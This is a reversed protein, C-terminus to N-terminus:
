CAPAQVGRPRLAAARARHRAPQDLGDADAPIVILDAGCADALELVERASAGGDLPLFSSGCSLSAIFLPIFGTRNGVNSVITPNPPLGLAACRANWRLADDELDAFTRTVQESLAYVAVRNRHDSSVKQFAEAVLGRMFGYVSYGLVPRAIAGTRARSAGGPPMYDRRHGPRTQVMQQRLQRM